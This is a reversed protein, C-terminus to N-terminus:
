NSANRPITNHEVLGRTKSSIRSDFIIYRDDCQLLGSFNDTFGITEIRKSKLITLGSYQELFVPSHRQM